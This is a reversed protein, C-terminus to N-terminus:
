NFEQLDEDDISKFGFDAVNLKEMESIKAFEVWKDCHPCNTYFNRCTFFDVVILMNDKGCDKSQWESNAPIIESCKPCKVDPAKVYNFM